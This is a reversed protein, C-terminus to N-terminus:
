TLAKIARKYCHSLAKIARKTRIKRRLMSSKIMMKQLSQGTVGSKILAKLIRKFSPPHPCITPTPALAKLAREPQIAVLLALAKSARKTQPTANLASKPLYKNALFKSNFKSIDTISLM